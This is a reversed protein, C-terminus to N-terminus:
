TLIFMFMGDAITVKIRKPAFPPVFCTVYISRRKFDHTDLLLVSEGYDPMSSMKSPSTMHQGNVFWMFRSRKRDSRCIVYLKSGRSIIVDNSPILLIGSVNPYRHSYRSINSFAVSM